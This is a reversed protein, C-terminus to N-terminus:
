SEPPREANRGAKRYQVENSIVTAITSNQTTINDKNEM